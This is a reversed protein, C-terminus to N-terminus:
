CLKKLYKTSVLPIATWNNELFCSGMSKASSISCCSRRACFYPHAEHTARTKVAANWFQVVLDFHTWYSQASHCDPSFPQDYEPGGNEREIRHASKRAVIHPAVGACHKAHPCDRIGVGELPGKPKSRLHPAGEWEFRQSSRAVLQLRSLSCCYCDRTETIDERKAMDRIGTPGFRFCNSGVGRSSAAFVM